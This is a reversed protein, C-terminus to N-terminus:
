EPSLLLSNHIVESVSVSIMCSKDGTATYEMAPDAARFISLMISNAWLVEGVFYKIDYKRAQLALYKLLETGIGKGQESDQVVFAVEAKNQNPLRYYRGVGIIETQACLGRDVVLAMNNEYDIDCFDTLENDSLDGKHYHYRLFRTDHSLRGYFSKLADKDQMSIPRLIIKNGCRLFIEQRYGDAKLKTRLVM